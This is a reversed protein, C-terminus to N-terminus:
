VFGWCVCNILSLYQDDVPKGRKITWSFRNRMIPSTSAARSCLRRLIAVFSACWRSKTSSWRYIWPILLTKCSMRNRAWIIFTIARLDVNACRACWWISLPLTTNKVLRYRICALIIWILILRNICLLNGFSFRTTDITKWSFSVVKCVAKRMKILWKRKLINSAVENCGLVHCHNQRPAPAILANRKVSKSM